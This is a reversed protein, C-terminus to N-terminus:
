EAAREKLILLAQVIIAGHDAATMGQRTVTFSQERILGDTRVQQM